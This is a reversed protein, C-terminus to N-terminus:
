CGLWSGPRESNTAEDSCWPDRQRPSTTTGWARTEDPTGAQSPKADEKAFEPAERFAEQAQCRGADEAGPREQQRDTETM